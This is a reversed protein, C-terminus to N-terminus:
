LRDRSDLLKSTLSKWARWLMMSLINAWAQCRRVQHRAPADRETEHPSCCGCRHWRSIHWFGIRVHISYRHSSAACSRTPRGKRSRGQFRPAHDYAALPAAVFSGRVNGNPYPRVTRGDSTDGVSCPTVFLLSGFSLAQSLRRRRSSQRTGSMTAIAFDYCTSRQIPWAARQMGCNPRRALRSEGQPLSCGCTGHITQQLTWLHNRVIRKFIEVESSTHDLVRKLSDPSSSPKGSIWDHVLYTPLNQSFGEM